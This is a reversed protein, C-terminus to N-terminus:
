ANMQGTGLNRVTVRKAGSGRLRDVNFCGAHIRAPPGWREAPRVHVLTLHGYPGCPFSHPGYSQRGKAPSGKGLPYAVNIKFLSPGLSIKHPSKFTTSNFTLLTLTLNEADRVGAATM